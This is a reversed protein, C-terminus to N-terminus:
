KRKGFIATGVRVMTAGEEIATEFDDSMGMSLEPLLVGLAETGERLERLERFYPRAEGPNGLFPPVTMLGRLRLNTMGTVAAAFDPLEDKSIGHKTEEASLKVEILVEQIKGIKEAQRNIELALDISDLSHILDFLAVATKAKNRQLHGILHWKINEGNVKLEESNVKRQAEQIRSEGFVRLGADIAERIAGVGVTKTVAVLTVETPERDAKMAARSIRIFVDRINDFISDKEM